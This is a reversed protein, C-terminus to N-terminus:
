QACGSFVHAEKLADKIALDARHCNAHMTVFYSQRAVEEQLSRLLGVVSANTSIMVNAGDTCLWVLRLVWLELPISALEFVVKYVCLISKTDGAERAQISFFRPKSQTGEPPRVYLLEKKASRDTCSDSMLAVYPARLLPQAYSICVDM